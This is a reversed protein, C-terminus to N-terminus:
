HTLTSVPFPVILCLVLYSRATVCTGGMPPPAAEGMVKELSFPELPDSPLNSTHCWLQPADCVPTQSRGSFGLLDIHILQNNWHSLHLILPQVPQRGMLVHQAFLTLINRMSSMHIVHPHPSTQCWKSGAWSSWM